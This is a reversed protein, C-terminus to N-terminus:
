TDGQVSPSDSDRPDPQGRLVAAMAEYPCTFGFHFAPHATMKGPHLADLQKWHCMVEVEAAAEERIARRTVSLCPCRTTGCLLIDAWSLGDADGICEGPM